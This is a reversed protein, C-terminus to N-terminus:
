SNRPGRMQAIAARVRQWQRAERDQGRQVCEDAKQRAVLEAKSGHLEMCRRANEHIDMMQM